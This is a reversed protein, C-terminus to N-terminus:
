FIMSFGLARRRSILEDGTSNNIFFVGTKGMGLTAKSYLKNVGAVAVPVSGQDSLRLSSTTQLDADANVLGTGNPKLDINANSATSYIQNGQIRIDDVNLGTSNITAKIQGDVTFLIRSPAHGSQSDLTTVKTDNEAIESYRYFYNFATVFDSLGKTNILVDDDAKLAIPGTLTDWATYDLANREYNNTQTVTVVGNGSNILALNAGGTSVSNTRIGTLAGTGYKFVFTGVVNTATPPNYHTVTDDYVLDVPSANAGRYIEFGASGLSIFYNGNTADARGADYVGSDNVNFRIINDEVDLNTTNITTTTGQVTLNGTVWVNGIDVGTDLTINGGARVAVKYDGNSVKVIKSM